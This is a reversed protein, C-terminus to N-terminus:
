ITETLRETAVYPMVEKNLEYFLKEIIIKVFHGIM